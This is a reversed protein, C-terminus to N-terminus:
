SGILKSHDGAGVHISIGYAENSDVAHILKIMTNHVTVCIPEVLKSHDGVGISIGYAENSDM